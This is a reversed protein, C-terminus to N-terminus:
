DGRWVGARWIRNKGTHYSISKRVINGKEDSVIIQYATQQLGREAGLSEMQWSFRPLEVDLGLPTVAYETKLNKVIFHANGSQLTAHCAICVSLLLVLLKCNKM